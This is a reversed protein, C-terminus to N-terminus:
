ASSDGQQKRNVQGIEFPSEGLHSADNLYNIKWNGDQYDFHSIATNALRVKEMGEGAVHQIFANIAGGHSVVLIRGPHHETVLQELRAVLRKQMQEMTEIGFKGSLAPDIPFSEYKSRIEDPTLGELQGFCRERLMPCTRVELGLAEGVVQATKYARQLDSAYIADLELSQLRRALREAQWKGQENLPIDSHGQIRRRRNWDTEGHRM